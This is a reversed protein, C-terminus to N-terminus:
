KSRINQLVNGARDIYGGWGKVGKGPNEFVTVIACGMNFSAAMDFQPAIVVKGSKDIFGFKHDPFQVVALGESFDEAHSFQPEIVVQGTRDIFGYLGNIRVSAHEDQFVGVEQFQPAIVIKGTRDIFGWKENLKIAALENIFSWAADFQLPIVIVGNQNIYGSKGDLRVVAMGESFFDANEYLPEVKMIGERNIHGWKGNFRVAALNEQFFRTEEFQPEIMIKGTTDIFGWKHHLKVEALGEYFMRADEFQPIIVPEGSQGSKISIYGFKGEVNIPKLTIPEPLMMEHFDYVPLVVWNGTKINKYKVKAGFKHNIGLQRHVEFHAHSTLNTDPILTIISNSDFSFQNLFKALSDISLTSGNIEIFSNGRTQINLEKCYPKNEPKVDTAGSLTIFGSLVLLVVAFVAYLKSHSRFNKIMIMRRKLAKSNELIGITLAMQYNSNFNELLAIITQGYLKAKEAGLISLTFEDCALERDVRMRYFALWILPNFWHLILLFTTFWTMISDKRKDHGLEHMFIAEWQALSFTEILHDPLLIKPRLFGYYLLPTQIQTIILIKFQHSIKLKKQCDKLLKLLSSDSLENANKLINQLGSYKRFMSYLFFVIGILWIITRMSQMSFFSNATNGVSSKIQSSAHHNIISPTDNIATKEVGPEIFNEDAIEPIQSNVFNFKLNDKESILNYVSWKSEFNFPLILRIIVLYWLAYRWSASLFRQFLFQLLRVLLVVVSAKISSAIIWTLISNISEILQM